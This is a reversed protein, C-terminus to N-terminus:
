RDINKISPAYDQYSRFLGQNHYGKDVLALNYVSDKNYMMYFLSYIENDGWRYKYVGGNANIAAIWKQWLDTRFIDMKIVYSDSWPLYHFQKEADPNDLLDCLLKNKPEINNEKIFNKTFKWLGVRTDFHGQHPAGDKLRQSTKLAGFQDPLQAMIDFPDQTVEKVWGAEDDNTMVYDFNEFETNPHGYMNIMFNCMHLYGKRKKTFNGKKVYDLENHNYFIDKEDIFSPTKYPISRFHINESINSHIEDTYEESDYIDDFYHVYVPYDHKCNYFKYLSELSKKLCKERSSIFSICVNYKKVTM